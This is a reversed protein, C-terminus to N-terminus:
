QAYRRLGDFTDTGIRSLAMNIFSAPTGGGPDFRIVYTVLVYGDKTPLFTWSSALKKVRVRDDREPVAGKVDSYAIVAEGTQANRTLHVDIVYDRDKVPWPNDIARYIWLNTPSLRRVVRSERCSPFWKVHNDGDLYISVLRDVSTKMKTVAKLERIREGPLDRTYIAVGHKDKELQWAQASASAPIVLPIQAFLFVVLAKM